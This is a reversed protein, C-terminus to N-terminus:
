KHTVIALINKNGDLIPVSYPKGYGYTEDFIVGGNSNGTLSGASVSTYQAEVDITTDHKRSRIVVRGIEDGLELVVSSVSHDSLQYSFVDLEPNFDRLEYKGRGRGLLRSKHMVVVFEAVVEITAAM